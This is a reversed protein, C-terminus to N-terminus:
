CRILVPCGPKEEGGSGALCISLAAEAAAGKANIVKERSKIQRDLGNIQLNPRGPRQTLRRPKNNSTGLATHEPGAHVLSQPLQTTALVSFDPHM